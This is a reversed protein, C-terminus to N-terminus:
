HYISYCYNDIRDTEILRNLVEVVDDITLMEANERMFHMTSKHSLNALILESVQYYKKYHYGPIIKVTDFDIKYFDKWDADIYHGYDELAKFPYCIYYGGKLPIFKPSNVLEDITYFDGNIYNFDQLAGSAREGFLPQGEINKPYLPIWYKSGLKQGYEAFQPSNEPYYSVLIKNMFSTDKFQFFRIYGGHPDKGALDPHPPFDYGSCSIFLCVVASLLLFLNKKRM